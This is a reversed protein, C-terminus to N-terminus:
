VDEFCVDATIGNSYIDRLWFYLVVPIIALWLDETVSYSTAFALFVQMPMSRVLAGQKKGTKIGMDQMGIQVVAYAAGLLLIKRLPISKEM